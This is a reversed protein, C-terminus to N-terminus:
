DSLGMAPSDDIQPTPVIAPAVVTRSEEAREGASRVIAAARYMVHVFKGYPATLYLAAISGLHLILAPGVVSTSRLALILLGTTSTSALSALFAYNLRRERRSEVAPSRTKLWILGVTGVTMAAGGALGLVVVPNDVPYPAPRRLVHDYFAALCTSAFALLFGYAVLHHFVRRSSSPEEIEPYYCDGGGGKLWRLTAMEYLARLWTRATLDRVGLSDRWMARFSWVMPTIALASLILASALMLTYPIADYFTRGAPAHLSLATGAKGALWALLAFGLVGVLTAASLTLPARDFLRSLVRPRAYVEYSAERATSLLNPIDIAFEHPASYMCAQTCARCDHCLNALYTLDGATIPGTSREMAPFVACYGECYRCGNCIAVQRQAELLLSELPNPEAM